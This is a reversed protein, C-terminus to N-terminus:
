PAPNRKWRFKPPLRAFAFGIELREDITTVSAAENPVNISNAGENAILLAEVRARLPADDGCAAALYNAREVPSDVDTNGFRKLFSRSTASGSSVYFRITDSAVRWSTKDTTSNPQRATPQRLCVVLM